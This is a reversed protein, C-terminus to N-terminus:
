FFDRAREERERFRWRERKEKKMWKRKEEEYKNSQFSQIQNIHNHMPHCCFLDFETTFNENKCLAEFFSRDHKQQCIQNIIDPNRLADVLETLGVNEKEMISVCYVKPSPSFYEM